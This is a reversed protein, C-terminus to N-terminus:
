AMQYHNPQSSSSYKLDTNQEKPSGEETKKMFISHFRFHLGRHSGGHDSSSVPLPLSGYFRPLHECFLCHHYFVLQDLGPRSFLFLLVGKAEHGLRVLLGAFYLLFDYFFSFQQFFPTGFGISAPLFANDM